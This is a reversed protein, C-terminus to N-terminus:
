FACYWVGREEKSFRGHGHTSDTFTKKVIWESTHIDIDSLSGYPQKHTIPLHIMSELNEIALSEAEEDLFESVDKGREVKVLRFTKVPESIKTVPLNPLSTM